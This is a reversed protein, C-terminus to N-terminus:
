HASPAVAEQTINAPSEAGAPDGTSEVIRKWRSLIGQRISEPSFQKAIEASVEWNPNLNRSQHLDVLRQIEEYGSRADKAVRAGPFPYSWLVHRAHGLAELAMFSLGDHRVPRWVVSSSRYFPTMDATWGHVRVNAPATLRQGPQLGVVNFEISPMRRAVELVHDIGYLSIRDVHPLYALVSFKTPLAPIEKPVRVWTSPVYECPLGMARVEEALWPAGAWHVKNTIWSDVRGADYDPRAELTDSGCWFMVMKKKRLVRAMSLFKGMTVRGGWTYALDCRHLYGTMAALNVPGEIGFHRISWGDSKLLEPFQRSFYALGHILVRIM